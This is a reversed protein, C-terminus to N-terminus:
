SSSRRFTTPPEEALPIEQPRSDDLSIRLLDSLRALMRVVAEREGKMALVSITNLTNFLFHPNVQSRLADLRASALSAELKAAAIARERSQAYYHSAFFIGVIAWYALFDLTFNTRMYHFFEPLFMAPSTAGLDVTRVSDRGLGTFSTAFGVAALHLYAFTMAAVFHLLAHRLRSDPQDLRFRNAVYLVPAVFPLYTLWIALDRALVRDFPVPEGMASSGIFRHATDLLALPVM